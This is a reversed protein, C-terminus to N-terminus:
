CSWLREVGGLGLGVLVLLSVVVLGRDLADAAEQVAIGPVQDLAVGDHVVDAHLQVAVDQRGFDRAAAHRAAVSVRGRDGVRHLGAVLESDRQGGHRGVSQKDIPDVAASDVTCKESM